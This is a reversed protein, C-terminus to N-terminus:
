VVKKERYKNQCVKPAFNRSWCSFLWGTSWYLSNWFIFFLFIFVMIFIFLIVINETEWNWDRTGDQHGVAVRGQPLLSVAEVVQCVVNVEVKVQVLDTKIEGDISIIIVKVTLSGGFRGLSNIILIVIDGQVCRNQSQGWGYLSDSVLYKEERALKNLSLNVISSFNEKNYYRIKNTKLHFSKPM